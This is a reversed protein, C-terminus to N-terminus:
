KSKGRHIWILKNLSCINKVEEERTKRFIIIIITMIEFIKVLKSM